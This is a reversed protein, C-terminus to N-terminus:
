KGLDEVKYYDLNWDKVEFIGIGNEESYVVIDPKLGNLHPQVYITWADGLTNLLAYMLCREGDTLKDPLENIYSLEPILKAM